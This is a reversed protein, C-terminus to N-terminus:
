HNGNQIKNGLKLVFYKKGREAGWEERGESIEVGKLEITFQPANASYGNKFCVCDFHKDNLRKEWYSKIERYEEKKEGSQILDFWKKSLTLYLIRM